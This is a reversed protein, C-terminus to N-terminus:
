NLVAVNRSTSQSSVGSGIAQAQDKAQEAYTVLPLTAARSTDAAEGRHADAARALSTKIHDALEAFRISVDSWEGYVDSSNGGHGEGTIDQRLQKAHKGAFTECTTELHM